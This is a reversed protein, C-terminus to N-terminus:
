LVGYVADMYLQASVPWTFRANFAARQIEAYRDPANLFLQAAERVSKLLNELIEERQAGDFGFGTARTHPYPVVTDALGGTLRVVPPTANSMAELQTIGCPEFLSPMLFADSALSIRTALAKDFAIAAMYNGRRPLAMLDDYTKAAAYRTLAINGIFSEYEPMGTALIAVNVNPLDLVHELVSKGRLPEALLKFKQEVARGVFGLLFKGPHEFYPALAAKEAAKKEITEAFRASTPEFSYSFGNLIGVLRGRRHVAHLIQHLGKGGEFYGQTDEPRQIEEAYAPSVTTVVDALEIGLRLANVSDWGPRPDTFASATEAHEMFTEIDRGKIHPRWLNGQYTANHITIVRRAPFKELAM